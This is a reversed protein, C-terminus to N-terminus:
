RDVSCDLIPCCPGEKVTCQHPIITPLPPCEARVKDCKVKGGALCECKKCRGIIFKEGEERLVGTNDVCRVDECDM